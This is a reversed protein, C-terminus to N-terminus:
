LAYRVSLQIQRPPAVSGFFVADGPRGYQTRSGGGGIGNAFGSENVKNFVNFVDARLEVGGRVTPLRYAASVDARFASPLREGNRPV